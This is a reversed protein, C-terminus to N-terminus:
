KRPASIGKREKDELLLCCFVYIVQVSKRLNDMCIGNFYCVPKILSVSVSNAISKENLVDFLDELSLFKKWIEERMWICNNYGLM